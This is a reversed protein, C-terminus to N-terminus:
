FLGHAQLRVRRRGSRVQSGVERPPFLKRKGFLLELLRQLELRPVIIGVVVEAFQVHAGSFDGGGRPIELLRLADIGSRVVVAVIQREGVNDGAAESVSALQKLAEQLLFIRSLQVVQESLDFFFVALEDCGGVLVFQRRVEIWALAVKEIPAALQQQVARELRGNLNKLAGRLAIGIRRAQRDPEADSVVRAAIVVVGHFRQELGGIETGGIRADIRKERPGVVTRGALGFLDDRMEPTERLLLGTVTARLKIERHTEPFPLARLIGM